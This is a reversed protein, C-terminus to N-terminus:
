PNESSYIPIFLIFEHYATIPAAFAERFEKIWAERAAVAIQQRAVAWTVMPGVFVAFIAIRLVLFSKLIQLESYSSQKM